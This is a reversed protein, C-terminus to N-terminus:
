KDNDATIFYGDNSGYATVYESATCGGMTSLFVVGLGTFDLGCTSNSQLGTRTECSGAINNSLTFSEFMIEPKEYKKKM